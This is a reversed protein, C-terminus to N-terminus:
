DCNDGTQYRVLYRDGDKVVRDNYVGYGMLESVSFVKDYDSGKLVGHNAVARDYVEKPIEREMNKM